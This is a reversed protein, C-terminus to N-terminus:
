CVVVNLFPIRIKVVLRVLRRRQLTVPRKGQLTLSVQESQAKKLVVVLSKYKQVIKM